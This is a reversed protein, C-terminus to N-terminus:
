FFCIVSLIFLTRGFFQVLQGSLTRNGLWLVLLIYLFAHYFLDNYENSLIYIGHFVLIHFNTPQNTKPRILGKWTM